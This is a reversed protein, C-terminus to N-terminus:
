LFLCGLSSCWPPRQGGSWEVRQDALTSGGLLQSFHAACARREEAHVTARSLGVRSLRSIDLRRRPRVYQVAPAGPAAARAVVYNMLLDECNFHEEVYQRAAAHSLLHGAHAALGGLPAVARGCRACLLQQSASRFRRPPLGGQEYEESWYLPFMREADIFAAGTLIVNYRRLGFVSREGQYAPPGARVIRPFFGVLAQPQELWLAFGREVDSCRMLQDDDLMLVARTRLLPDPRFRNSLSNAAEARLRVPVASRFESEVDPPPGDNWVVVIEAVTLVAGTSAPEALAARASATAAFTCICHM